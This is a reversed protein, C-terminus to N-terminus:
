AHMPAPLLKAPTVKGNRHSSLPRLRGSQTAASGIAQGFIVRPTYAYVAVSKEPVVGIAFIIVSPM